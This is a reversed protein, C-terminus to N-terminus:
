GKAPAKGPEKGEKAKYAKEFAARAKKWVAENKLPVSCKGQGKCANQGPTTGCGGQGKCENMGACSHDAKATACAGQGACANKGGKGKGKCTNLGRCVHPEQVLYATDPETKAQGDKDKEEGKEKGKEEGKEEGKGKGGGTTKAAQCGALTGAVMGGLAAMSLRTFDRRTLDNKQDM